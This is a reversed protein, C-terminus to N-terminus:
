KAEGKKINKSLAEYIYKAFEPNYKEEEDLRRKLEEQIIEKLRKKTISVKM